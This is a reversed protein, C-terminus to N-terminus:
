SPAPLARLARPPTNPGPRRGPQLQPLKFRHRVRSGHPRARVPRRGTLVVTRMRALGPHLFFIVLGAAIATVVLSPDAIGVPPTAGILVDRLIGGGLGAAWALVLVGFVDFKKRVAALGGSLASFFVGAIELVVDIQVPGMM